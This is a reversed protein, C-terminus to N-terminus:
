IGVEIFDAQRFLNASITMGAPLTSQIDALVRDLEGTLALTNAGPQKQIGLVVAREGNFAATGRTPAAGVRVEAVDRVLVPRDGRRTVFVEGIDAPERVRGRGHILFEQANEVYFGASTNENSEAVADMVQDLTVD